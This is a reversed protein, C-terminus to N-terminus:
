ATSSPTSSHGPPMTAFLVILAEYSVKLKILIMTECEPSKYLVRLRTPLVAANALRSYRIDNPLCVSHTQM